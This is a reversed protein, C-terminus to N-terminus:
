SSMDSASTGQGHQKVVAVIREVSYRRRKM